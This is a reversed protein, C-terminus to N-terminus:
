LFMLNCANMCRLLMGEEEEEFNLTTAIKSAAQAVKGTTVDAINLVNDKANDFTDQIGTSKVVSRVSDTALSGYTQVANAAKYTTMQAIQTAQSGFEKFVNLIKNENQVSSAKPQNQQSM